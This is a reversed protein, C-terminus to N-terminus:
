QGHVKEAARGQERQYLEKRDDELDWFNSPRAHQNGWSDQSKQEVQAREDESLAGVNGGYAAYRM